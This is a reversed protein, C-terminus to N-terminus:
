QGKNRLGVGTRSAAGRVARGHMALLVHVGVVHVDHRELAGEFALLALAKVDHETGGCLHAGEEERKAGPQSGAASDSAPRM